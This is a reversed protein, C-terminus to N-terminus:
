CHLQDWMKELGSLYADPDRNFQKRQIVGSLRNDWRQKCAEYAEFSVSRLRSIVHPQRLADQVLVIMEGNRM